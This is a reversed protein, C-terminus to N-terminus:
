GETPTTRVALAPCPAYRIIREAVSGVLMRALGTRGHTSVVVLDINHEGLWECVVDAPHEGVLLELAADIGVEDALAVLEKELGAKVEDSSALELGDAAPIPVDDDYVHMLTVACDFAGKLDVCAKAAESAIESLDTPAVVRELQWGDGAGRAVLVDCHAHRVIREAVSGVLVRMIAGRGRTGVVILSVDKEEAFACLGRAASGSRFAALEVELGEGLGERLTELGKMAADRMAREAQAAAGPEILRSYPEPDFTHALTVKAGAKRALTAGVEVAHAAHESFDTAILIHAYPTPM